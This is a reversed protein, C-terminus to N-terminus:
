VVAVNRDHGRLPPLPSSGQSSMQGEGMLVVWAATEGFCEPLRCHLYSPTLHPFLPHLSIDHWLSHCKSHREMALAPM